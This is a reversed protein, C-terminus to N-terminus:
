ISCQLAAKCFLTGNKVDLLLNYNKHSFENIINTVKGMLFAAGCPGFDIRQTHVLIFAYM